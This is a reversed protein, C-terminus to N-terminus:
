DDKKTDSKYSGKWLSTVSDDERSTSFDRGMAYVTRQNTPDYAFAEKQDPEEELVVSYSLAALLPMTNSSTNAHKILQM